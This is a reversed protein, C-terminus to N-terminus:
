RYYTFSRYDVSRIIGDEYTYRKTWNGYADYWYKYTTAPLEGLYSSNLQVSIVDGKENLITTEVYSTKSVNVSAKEIITNEEYSYYNESSIYGNKNQGKEYTIRNLSDYEFYYTKDTNADVHRRTKLQGNPYYTLYRYDVGGSNLMHYESAIQRGNSDLLIKKFYEQLHGVRSDTVWIESSSQWSYDFYYLTDFNQDFSIKRILITDTSDYLCEFRGIITHNPNNNDTYKRILFGESNFEEIFEEGIKLNEFSNTKDWEEKYKMTAHYKKVPGKLNRIELGLEESYSQAMSSM